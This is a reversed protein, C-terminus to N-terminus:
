RSQLADPPGRRGVQRGFNPAHPLRSVHRNAIAWGPPGSCVRSSAAPSPNVSTMLLRAPLLKSDQEKTHPHGSYGAARWGPQTQSNVCPKPFNHRPASSCYPVRVAGRRAHPLAPSWAPRTRPRFPRQEESFCFTLNEKQTLHTNTLSKQRKNTKSLFGGSIPKIISHYSTKSNICSYVSWSLSISVQSKILSPLNSSPMGQWPTALHLSLFNSFNSREYRHWPFIDSPYCSLKRAQLRVTSTSFWYLLLARRLASKGQGGGEVGAM